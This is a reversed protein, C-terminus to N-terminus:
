KRDELKSQIRQGLYPKFAPNEAVFAEDVLIEEGAIYADRKETATQEPVLTNVLDDVGKTAAGLFQVV